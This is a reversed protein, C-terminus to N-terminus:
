SALLLDIDAIAARLDALLRAAPAGDVARHDFTLSLPLRRSEDIAGVGLIAVAPLDLIPTFYDVGLAGLNSVTFTAGGRETASLTGATAAAALERARAALGRLTRNQASEVRAVLLGRPTDVALGLHVETSRRLGETTLHANLDPHGPLVRSVAFLVLDTVTVHLPETTGRLRTRLTLLASADARAHLTVPAAETTAAVTREAIVRRTPSLAVAARVDAAIVLGGPGSGPVAALDVGNREAIVKARPSAPPTVAEGPQGIVLLAAHVPLEAGERALIRLVTGDVPAELQTVTKATEIEAVAAGARVAEGERVLIASVLVPGDDNGSAPVRVDVAM